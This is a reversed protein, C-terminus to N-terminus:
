HARGLGSVIGLTRVQQSYIDAAVTRRAILDLKPLRQQYADLGREEAAELLSVAIRAGVDRRPRKGLKPFVASAAAVRSPEGKRKLIEERLRLVRDQHSTQCELLEEHAESGEALLALAEAYTDVMSLEDLLLENLTQLTQTDPPDNM